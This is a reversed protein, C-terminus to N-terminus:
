PRGLGLLLRLCLSYNQLLTHPMGSWMCNALAIRPLEVLKDKACLCNACAYYIHAVVGIGGEGTCVHQSAPQAHRGSSQIGLQEASSQPAKRSDPVMPHVDPTPYGLCESALQSCLLLDM